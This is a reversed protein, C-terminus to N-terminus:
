LNILYTKQKSVVLVNQLNESNSIKLLKVPDKVHEIIKNM